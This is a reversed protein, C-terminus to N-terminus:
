PNVTIAMNGLASWSDLFQNISRTYVSSGDQITVDETRLRLVTRPLLGVEVILRFLLRDARCRRSHPMVALIQDLQVRPLAVPPHPM